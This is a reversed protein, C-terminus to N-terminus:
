PAVEFGAARLLLQMYTEPLEAHPGRVREVVIEHALEHSLSAQRVVDHDSDDSDQGDEGDDAFVDRGYTRALEAMRLSRERTGGSYTYLNV